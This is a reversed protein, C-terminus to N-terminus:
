RKRNGQSSTLLTDVDPDPVGGFCRVMTEDEFGLGEVPRREGAPLAATLKVLHSENLRLGPPLQRQLQRVSRRTWLTITRRQAFGQAVFSDAGIIPTEFTVGESLFSHNCISTLLRTPTATPM